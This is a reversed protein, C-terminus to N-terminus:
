FSKKNKILDVWREILAQGKLVLHSSSSWIPYQHTEEIQEPTQINNHRDYIKAFIVAM